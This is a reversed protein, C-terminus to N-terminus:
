IDWDKLARTDGKSTRDALLVDADRTRAIHMTREHDVDPGVM